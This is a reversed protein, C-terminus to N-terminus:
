HSLRDSFYLSELGNSIRYAMERPIFADRLAPSPLGSIDCAAPDPCSTGGEGPGETQTTLVQKSLTVQARSEELMFGIVHKDKPLKGELLHLSFLCIVFSIQLLLQSLWLRPRSSPPRSRTALPRPPDPAMQTCAEPCLPRGTFILPFLMWASPVAYASMRLDALGPSVLTAQALSFSFIVSSPPSPLPSSAPGHPTMLLVQTKSQPPPWQSPQHIVCEIWVLGIDSRIKNDKLVRCICVAPCSKATPHVLDCGLVNLEPSPACLHSGVVPARSPSPLGPVWHGM